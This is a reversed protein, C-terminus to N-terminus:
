HFKKELDQFICNIQSPSIKPHLKQSIKGYECGYDEAGWKKNNCVCLVRFIKIKPKQLVGRLCRQFVNGAGLNIKVSCIM